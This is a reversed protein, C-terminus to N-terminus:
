FEVAERLATPRPHKRRELSQSPPKKIRQNFVLAVSRVSIGLSASLEETNDTGDTALKM